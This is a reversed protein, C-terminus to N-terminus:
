FGHLNQMDNTLYRVMGSAPLINLSDNGASGFTSVFVTQNGPYLTIEAKIRPYQWPRTGAINTELGPGHVKRYGSHAID